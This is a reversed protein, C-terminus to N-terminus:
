RPMLENELKGWVSVFVHRDLNNSPPLFVDPLLTERWEADKIFVRPFLESTFPPRSSNVLLYTFILYVEVLQASFFQIEDFVLIGGCLM